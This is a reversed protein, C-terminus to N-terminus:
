GMMAKFEEFSLVGDENADFRCIMTVCEEIAKSTGLRSLMRKLSKATICGGEGKMVYMQFAEWLAEEEETDNEGKAGVFQMFEDMDLLGDGNADTSEVAAKADQLSLEHSVTRMLQRLEPPSLKGDGDSDFRSFIREFDLKNSAM